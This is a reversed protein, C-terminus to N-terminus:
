HSKQRRNGAYKLLLIVLVALVPLLIALQSGSGHVREDAVITKRVAQVEDQTLSTRKSGQKLRESRGVLAPITQFVLGLVAIGVGLRSWFRNTRDRILLALDRMDCIPILGQEPQERDILSVPRVIPQAAFTPAESLVIDPLTQDRSDAGAPLFRDISPDFVRLLRLIELYGSDTEQLVGLRQGRL